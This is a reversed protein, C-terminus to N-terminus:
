NARSHERVRADDHQGFPAHALLKSMWAPLTHGIYHPRGHIEVGRRADAAQRQLDEHRERSAEFLAFDYM